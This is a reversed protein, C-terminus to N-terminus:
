AINITHSKGLDAPLTVQLSGVHGTHQDAADITVPVGDAVWRLPLAFQGREDTLTRERLGQTVLVDAVVKGIADKVTGRLVPVYNPFPYHPAPLLMTDIAHTAIVQPAVDDNYPYADFEFGDLNARYLPRYWQANLRVRYHRAPKGLPQATRELGPYIIVGGPTTVNRVETPHWQMGDFLDLMATVTGLPGEGTMEDILHLGIPSYLESREFQQVDPTV